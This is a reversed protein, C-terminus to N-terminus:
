GRGSVGEIVEALDEQLEKFTERRWPANHLGDDGIESAPLAFSTSIFIIWAVLFRKM